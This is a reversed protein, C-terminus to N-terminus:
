FHPKDVWPLVNYFGTKNKSYQRRQQHTGDFFHRNWLDVYELFRGLFREIEVAGHYRTGFSGQFVPLEM